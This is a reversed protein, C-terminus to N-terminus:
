TGSFRADGRALTLEARGDANVLQVLRAPEDERAKILESPGADTVPQRCL